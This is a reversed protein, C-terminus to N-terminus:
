NKLGISNHRLVKQTVQAFWGGYVSAESKREVLHHYFINRSPEALVGCHNIRNAGIAMLFVDGMQLRSRAPLEFFGAEVFNDEFRNWDSRDWEFLLGRDFDKLEIKFKERYFDQLLAYCDFIGWAFQRGLIPINYSIESPLIYNFEKSHPNLIVWPLNSKKCGVRDEMSPIPSSNPHTHYIALIESTQKITEVTSQDMIFMQQGYKEGALNSLAITREEGDTNVIYGCAEQPHRQLGDKIISDITSQQLKM